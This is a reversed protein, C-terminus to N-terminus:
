PDGFVKGGAERLAEALQHDFTALTAGMRLVLELYTADYGTLGYTRALSLALSLTAAPPTEDQEIWLSRVKSLFFASKAPTVSARRESIVVGNAVEPFWLAPVTAGQIRVAQLIDLAQQSEAPDVREILWALTVSADLVLPM